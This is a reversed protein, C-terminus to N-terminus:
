HHDIIGGIDVFRVIAELSGVFVLVDSYTCLVHV